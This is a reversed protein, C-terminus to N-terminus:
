HPQHPRALTIDGGYMATIPNMGGPLSSTTFTAVANNLTGMGIQMPGNFFTITGTPPGQMPFTPTVTTTFTVPQGYQSPNPSSALAVRSGALNLLISGGSTVADLSGTGSGHLDALVAPGGVTAYDQPAQFSGDGNGLLVELEQNGDGVALDLIGDGNVDGASVSCTPATTPCQVQPQFTGDGTGLLISVNSGGGPGCAGYGNTNGVALDLHGDGNLDAIAASSPSNGTAYNVSPAFTGDGNGLLISVTGAPGGGCNPGAGCFNVVALDLNGDANLDAAGVWTPRYGVNYTVQSQFTGDGNGLLISVTGQGVCGPNSGCNNAVALDLKGDGNFDGVVVSVPNDGVPYDVHPQFTGNGNGLLVSVTNNDPANATVLDLKGDGNFDGSSVATSFGGTAFNMPAQFTGNGNGLEISVYTEGAFALDPNGDGNFDAVVAAAGGFIDQRGQLTGDGNGLLVTVSNGVVGTPYGSSDTAVVDYNGDGNLDPVAIGGNGEETGYATYPTQFTGDGNGILIGVSAAPGGSSAIDPKGDGNFDAIAVDYSIGVGSYFVPNQFTGDGNGLLVGVESSGVALDPKGDGNLDAIAVEGASRPFGSYTAGATFTGDGKGLFIEVTGLCDCTSGTTVALDLNGDGNLDGAALSDVQPGQYNVETQFTGNGNGLLIGVAGPAHDQCAFGACFYGIAVDLKDDGNFDGIALGGPQWTMATNIPAQFTGDGNGLLVSVSGPSGCTPDSGCSNVVVLDTIGDGNADGAALSGANYGVTYDVQTQFTGDGNGLLISVTSQVGFGASCNQQTGCSNVVALDQVGDGNFDSTVVSSPGYDTQYTPAEFFLNGSNQPTKANSHASAASAILGRFSPFLAPVAAPLLSPMAMLAARWTQVPVISAMGSGNARLQRQPPATASIKCLALIVLASFVIPMFPFRPKRNM